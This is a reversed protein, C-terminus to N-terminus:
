ALTPTFELFRAFQKRAVLGSRPPIREPGLCFLEGRRFGGSLSAEPLQEIRELLRLSCEFRSHGSGDLLDAGEFPSQGLNRFAEGAHDLYAPGQQRQLVLHNSVKLDQVLCLLEVFRDMSEGRRNM